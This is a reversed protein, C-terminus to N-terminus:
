PLRGFWFLSGSAALVLLLLSAGAFWDTVERRQVDVQLNRGLDQYVNTLEDATEAQLSQGGTARALDDLAAENVPVPVQAGTLPDEITGDDTGFAVTNVAIGRAEAEVAAQDNPRGHTTEGDSLLVITGAPSSDSPEIEDRGLQTSATEIADLALFVAEGIATGEGLDARDVVRRVAELNTTPQILQRAESDFAVVGVAVGDPVTDLFDGVAAKAADLRSPDVDTAQM